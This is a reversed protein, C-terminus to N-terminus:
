REARVVGTACAFTLRLNLLILYYFIIKEAGAKPIQNESQGKLFSSCEQPFTPCIPSLCAWM